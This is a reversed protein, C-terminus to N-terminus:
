ARAAMVDGVIGAIQREVAVVDYVERMMALGAAGLRLCAQDDNLLGVCAEALADDDDRLLIEHGNRFALGEAGVVTSVMPRAHAAAEVLKLRTGSGTTIPCCVLRSRGYLAPLDDVFGLHEVGPVQCGHSPLRESDPGAILLRADPVRARVLPFIRTTLREAALVNPLHHFSGLYLITRDPVLGPPNPPVRVANPVFLVSSPFGLRRLHLRDTESCVFTRACLNATRREAFLLAPIQLASLPAGLRGPRAFASRWQVKHYVDDMDFLVAPPRRRSALLPLGADLRDLLVIDAAREDLAAAVRAALAPGGYPFLKPQQAADFIGAIYHNWATEHRRRRPTLSVHVPVQWFASQRRDLAMPDDGLPLTAEPVFQLMDISSGLSHLARLFAGARRHKGGAERDTKVPLMPTVFLTHM